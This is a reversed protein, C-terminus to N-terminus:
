RIAEIGSIVVRAGISLGMHEGVCGLVGAFWSAPDKPPAKGTTDKVYRALLSVYGRARTEDPKSNKGLVFQESAYDAVAEVASTWDWASALLKGTGRPAIARLVAEPLEVPPTSSYTLYDAHVKLAEIADHQQQLANMAVLLAHAADRVAEIRKRQESGPTANGNMVAQGMKNAFTLFAARQTRTLKSRNLHLQCEAKVSAPFFVPNVFGGRGVSFDPKSIQHRM